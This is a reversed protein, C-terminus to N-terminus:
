GAGRRFVLLVLAMILGGSLPYLVLYKVYVGPGTLFSFDWIILKVVIRALMQPLHVVVRIGGKFFGEDSLTQVINFGIAQNAVNTGENYIRTGARHSDAETDKCARTLGTFSTATKGSYCVIESDINFHDASLWGDTADVTFTTDDADVDAMLTATALGTTGELIFSLVTANLFAFLFFIFLNIM